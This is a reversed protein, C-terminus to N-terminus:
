LDTELSMFNDKGLAFIYGGNNSVITDGIVMSFNASPSNKIGMSIYNDALLAGDATTGILINNFNSAISSTATQIIQKAGNPLILTLADNNSADIMMYTFNKAPASINNSNLRSLKIM